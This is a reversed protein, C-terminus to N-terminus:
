YPEGTYSVFSDYFGSPRSGGRMDCILTPVPRNVMRVKQCAEYAKGNVYVQPVRNTAIQRTCFPWMREALSWVVADRYGPPAFYPSELSAPVGLAAWTYLQIANGLLPPFVNLVGNPYQPDYYYLNTVNIAPIQQIALSAWEEVSLPRMHIYVPQSGMNLMVCNARVISDPRPAVFDPTGTITAVGNVTANHSIIINGASGVGLSVVKSGGPIGAGSIAEGISLKAADLATAVILPSSMTLTGSFTYLPGILYGNGNTQSGPVNVLFQYQPISFGMTREAAWSDFLMEWETMGAALLEPNSIYGPKIQGCRLLAQSIYDQAIALGM